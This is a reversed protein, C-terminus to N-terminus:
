KIFRITIDNLMHTFIKKGRLKSYNLLQNLNTLFSCYLHSRMDPLLPPQLEM